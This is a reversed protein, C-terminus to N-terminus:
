PYLPLDVHPGRGGFISNWDVSHGAAYLAALTEWLCAVDSVNRKLSSYHVPRHPLTEAVEAFPSALIPHPSVEVCHGVDPSLLERLAVALWFPECLNRVWYAARMQTGALESGTVSSVFPVISERPAIDSLEAEMEAAVRRVDPGHLALKVDPLLKAFVGGRVERELYARVAGVSGSILTMHPALYGAVSVGTETGVDIEDAALGVVATLGSGEMRAMLRSRVVAIRMADELSIAGCCYAAAIEGLSQGMVAAPALGFSKWLDALACGVAVIAPQAFSTQGIRSASSDQALEILLSAGTLRSHYADCKEITQRFVQYRTFLERGMGAWQSGQGSFLFVLGSPRPAEAARETGNAFAELQELLAEASNAIFAAREEVLHSRRTAAAWCLASPDVGDRLKGAYANSLARLSERHRASIALLHPGRAARHAHSDSTEPKYEHLVV